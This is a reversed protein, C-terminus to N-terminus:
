PRFAHFRYGHTMALAIADISHNTDMPADPLLIKIMAAMQTKGASGSGTIAKKVIRNQYEVLPIGFKGVAVIAAGRAQGLSLSNHPNRNVFVKEIACQEVEFKTLNHCLTDYIVFLRRATDETAVTKITGCSIFTTKGVGIQLVAWGTNVLGPDVGLIRM